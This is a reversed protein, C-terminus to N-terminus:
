DNYKVITTGAKQPFGTPKVGSPTGKTIDM